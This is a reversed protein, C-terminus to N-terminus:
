IAEKISKLWTLEEKTLYDKLSEYVREHYKHILVKEEQTLLSQDIAEIDYPVLTLDDFKLFDGFDTSKDKKCVVLNEIRVGFENPLYVGPENSTIMGEKFEYNARMAPSINQPGEHVNLFSGVGHGTGHNYNYGYQYLPMRALIDLQVGSTGSKFVANSLALHGKLVLTYCLKEKDSLEGMSITRTIDTTGELYQGGSDVLLFSKPYVKINTEPTAFYHIIAGHEKYGAITEFSIGKFNPQMSRFEELKDSVSIEDMEIKGVNTKLWYIFKTVAIGDKLHAYYANKIEVENKEAKLITTYNIEDIVKNVKILSCLAYNVKNKQYVVVDEKDYSSVDAYISFYNRVSINEASFKNLLEASIVGDNVYLITEDLSIVAYSLVVPNCAVDNGRINFLWAIDDLSTLVLRNANLTKLHEKVKNIKETRELGSYIVDLEYAPEKSISPRNDWVLDILDEEFSIEVKKDNLEKKIIDVFFSSVVRGDFGIKCTKPLKLKLFETLKLVGPEGDKYLDITSDKLQDEAQLFYRGDTWLGAETLTVVVTGSSGTFGSIFSRAKFYDGVYESGHFDNTPIIYADINREKMLNRLAQLNKIINEKM